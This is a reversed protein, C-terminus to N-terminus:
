LIKTTISFATPPPGFNSASVLQSTTATAQSLPSLSRLVQIELLSTCCHLFIDSGGHHSIALYDVFDYGKKEKRKKKKETKKVAAGM